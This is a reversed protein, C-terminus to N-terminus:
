FHSGSGASEPATSRLSQRDGEFEDRSNWGPLSQTLESISPLSQRTGSVESGNSMNTLQDKLRDIEAQQSSVRSETISLKERLSEIQTNLRLVKMRHRDETSPLTYLREIDDLLLRRDEGIKLTLSIYLSLLATPVQCHLKWV